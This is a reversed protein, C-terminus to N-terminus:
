KPLTLTLLSYYSPARPFSSCRVWDFTFILLITKYPRTHGSFNQVSLMCWSQESLNGTLISCLTVSILSWLTISPQCNIFSRKFEALPGLAMILAAQVMLPSINHQNGMDSSPNPTPRPTLPHSLPSSIHTPLPQPPPPPPNSVVLYACHMKRLM